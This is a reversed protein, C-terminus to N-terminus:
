HGKTAWTALSCCRSSMSTRRSSTAFIMENSSTGNRHEAAASRMSNHVVIPGVLAGAFALGVPVWLGVSVVGLGQGIVLMVSPAVLGAIAAAALYSAHVELSRRMLRLDATVEPQLRLRRAISRGVRARGDIPGAILVTAPRALYTSVKALSPRRQAIGSLLLWVGGSGLLTAVILRAAATM